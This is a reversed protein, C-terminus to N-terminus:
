ASSSTRRRPGAPGATRRGVEVEANLREEIWAKIQARHRNPDLTRFDLFLASAGAFLLVILVLVLARKIM